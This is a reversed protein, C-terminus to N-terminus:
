GRALWRAAAEQMLPEGGWAALVPAGDPVETALRPHGFLVIVPESGAACARAVAERASASIGPRGKWARIDAYLAIVTQRGSLAATLTDSEHVEAGSDRLGAAFADRPGPPYPGGLDDDVTVLDVARERLVPHGRVPRLARIALGAARNRDEEGGWEGERRAAVRETARDIRRIAEAIRTEPLGKGVTEEVARAVARPDQPYLLVDCGAAVAEVAARAEGRGGELVGEMILADTVVLGDYGIEERLLTGIIESSLTAPTGSADLAPYAVHASMMSDVGIEAAARFPALDAELAERSAEVTPLEVHSDSVTRGHGPFHKVCSLGGGARCGEIWAEVHAAVRDPEAGFARTGVIPNLPEIDLDAVPAYIWAVGLARAERATVEGAWRTAELDDLAGLAALPPLPTAGEFQQGAGRELDAGILLPEPSRRQLEATLARVAEATGGFLIFGGVGLELGASITEEEHEFGTKANWRLAPFILRGVRM